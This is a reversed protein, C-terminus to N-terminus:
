RTIQRPLLRVLHCSQHQDKDQEMQENTTAMCCPRDHKIELLKRELAGDRSARWPLRTRHSGAVTDTKTRYALTARNMVSVVCSHKSSPPQQSKVTSLLPVSNSTGPTTRVRLMSVSCSTCCAWTPTDTNTRPVGADVTAGDVVLVVEILVVLLSVVEEVVAVVVDVVVM